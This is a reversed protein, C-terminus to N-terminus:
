KALEVRWSAKGDEYSLYIRDLMDTEKIKGMARLGRLVFDPPPSNEEGDQVSVGLLDIEIECVTEDTLVARLYPESGVAINDYTLIYEIVLLSEESYIDGLCLMGEGGMSRGICEELRGIFNDVATLKDFLTPAGDSSYGLLDDIGLGRKTGGTTAYADSTAFSISDGGIKLRSHSDIYVSSGEAEDAFVDLKDPNYGFLRLLTDLDEGEPVALPSVSILDFSLQDSIMPKAPGETPASSFSFECTNGDSDSLKSIYFDSAVIHEGPRFEFYGNVPDYAYALFRHAAQNNDPIIIIEKIYAGQEGETLAATDDASVTLTGAAYAYILQYLVPTHYSLYIYEDSNQAAAFMKSGVNDPLERCMSASGFLELICPKILTYLEVAGDRRGVCGRPADQALQKYGIFEPVLLEADLGEPETGGLVSWLKDFSKVQGNKEAIANEFVRTGSIYVVVLVILSVVLLSLLATKIAERVKYYKLTQIKENM